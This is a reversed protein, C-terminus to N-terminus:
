MCQATLHGKSIYIYTRNELDRVDPRALIDTFNTFDILDEKCTGKFTHVKFVNLAKSKGIQELFEQRM